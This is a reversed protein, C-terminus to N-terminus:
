KKVELSRAWKTIQWIGIFLVGSVLSGLNWKVSQKLLELRRQFYSQNLRNIATKATATMFDTLKQKSEGLSQSERIEPPLGQIRSLLAQMQAQTQVGQLQGKVVDIETMGQSIQQKLQNEAARNIQFTSFVGLPVFLLYGIGALLAAWSLIGLLYREWKGRWSRTDYFVLLMGLLPVPVREVLNGLTQFQWGPDMLRIPLLTDILDFLSLVLLGYGILRLLKSQSSSNM